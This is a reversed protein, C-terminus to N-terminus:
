SMGQHASFLSARSTSIAMHCVRSSAPQALADQVPRSVVLRVDDSLAQVVGNLHHFMHRVVKRGKGVRPSAAQEGKAEVADAHSIELEFLDFLSCTKANETIFTIGILM